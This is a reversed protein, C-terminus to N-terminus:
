FHYRIGASTIDAESFTDYRIQLSVKKSFRYDASVGVFGTTEDELETSLGFQSGINANASIDANVNAGGLRGSISFKDTFPATLVLSAYTYDVEATAGVTIGAASVSASYQGLVVYGIELGLYRNLNYGANINLTTDSDDDINCNLAFGGIQPSDELFDDCADNLADFTSMGVNLGVFFEGAHSVPTLMTLAILANLSLNKNM